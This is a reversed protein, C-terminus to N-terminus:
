RLKKIIEKVIIVGQKYVFHWINKYLRSKRRKPNTTVEIWTVDYGMRQAKCISEITYSFKNDITMKSALTSTMARFGSTVDPINGVLMMTVRNGIKYLIKKLWSNGVKDYIDRCGIVMDAKGDLIPQVLRPIDSGKYQKDADINVIIDAGLEVAKKLGRVFTQALGLNPYNHIVHNSHYYAIRDTLDTSGDDIVLTEITDIGKIDNNRSESIVEHLTQQENYAPIQVILKM